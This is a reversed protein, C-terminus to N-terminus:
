FLFSTVAFGWQGFNSQFFADESKAEEEKGRV